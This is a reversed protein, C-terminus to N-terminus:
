YKLPLLVSLCSNCVLNGGYNNHESTKKECRTCRPNPPQMYDEQRMYEISTCRVCLIRDDIIKYSKIIKGCHDCEVTM